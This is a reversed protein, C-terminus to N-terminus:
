AIRPELVSGTNGGATRLKRANCSRRRCSAALEPLLKGRKLELGYKAVQKRLSLLTKTWVMPQDLYKKTMSVFVCPRAQESLECPGKVECLRRKCEIEFALFANYTDKQFRELDGVIRVKTRSTL